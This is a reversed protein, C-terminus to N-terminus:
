DVASWTQGNEDGFLNRLGRAFVPPPPIRRVEVHPPVIIVEPKPPPAPKSEAYPREQVKKAPRFTPKPEATKVAKPAAPKKRYTKGTNRGFRHENCFETKATGDFEVGCEKCVRKMKWKDSNRYAENRALVRRRNCPDCVRAMKSYAEGGCDECVGRPKDYMAAAEERTVGHRRMFNRIGTLRSAHAKQETTLPKHPYKKKVRGYCSQHAGHDLKGGEGCYRCTTANRRGVPERKQTMEEM